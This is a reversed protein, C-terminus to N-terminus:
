SADLAEFQRQMEVASLLVVVAPILKTYSTSMLTNAITAVAIPAAVVVGGLTAAGGGILWGIGSWWGFLQVIIWVGIQSFLGVGLFGGVTGVVTAQILAAAGGGTIMGSTIATSLSKVTLNKGGAFTAQNGVAKKHADLQENLSTVLKEREKPSAKEWAKKAHADVFTLIDREIVEPPADAKYDTWGWGPKLKDAVDVLMQGYDHGHRDRFMNWVSHGAVSRMEASVMDIRQERNAQDFSKEDPKMKLAAWVQGITDDDVARLQDFLRDNIPM